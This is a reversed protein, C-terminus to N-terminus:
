KGTGGHGHVGAPRPVLRVRYWVGKRRVKYSEPGPVVAEIAKPDVLDSVLAFHRSEAESAPRTEANEFVEFAGDVGGLLTIVREGETLKCAFYPKARSFSLQYTSPEAAGDVTVEIEGALEALAHLMPGPKEDVCGTLGSLHLSLLIATIFRM